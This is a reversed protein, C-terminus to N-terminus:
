SSQKRVPLWDGTRGTAWRVSEGALTRALHRWPRRFRYLCALRLLTRAGSAIVAGDTPSGTSRVYAGLFQEAVARGPPLGRCAQLSRLVLHAMLNGVDEAPDGPHALDLDILTVRPGALLINRDHFDGHVLRDGSGAASALGEVRELATHLPVADEPFTASALRVYEALAIPPSPPLVRVGSVRHFNALAGAVRDFDISGGELLRDHMSRGPAERFILVDAGLDAEILQPLRPADGARGAEIAVEAFRQWRPRARGARFVKAYRIEGAHHLAVTARRGPRYAALWGRRLLTSLAPLSPDEEPRVRTLSDTAPDYIGYGPTGSAVHLLRVPWPGGPRPWVVDWLFGDREPEDRALLNHRTLTRTM